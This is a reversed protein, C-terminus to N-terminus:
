KKEQKDKKPSTGSERDEDAPLWMMIRYFRTREEREDRMRDQIEKLAPNSNTNNQIYQHVDCSVQQKDQETMHRM